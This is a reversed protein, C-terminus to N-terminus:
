GADLLRLSEAAAPDPMLRRLLEAWSDDQQVCERVLAAGREPSGAGVLGVGAWFRLEVKEPATEFARFWRDAAGAADGAASLQDGEDALRYADSLRLLRRLEVLPEPGDDVRLDVLREEPGGTAPVVLIAASQRGRLDGGAAEAADLTALLAAGLGGGRVAEFTDKMAHWVAPSRMINAQVSFGDGVLHGADAMCSAGTHAAASGDAGVVAFQRHDILDDGARLEAVVQDATRGDRLMALGRPKVALNPAAQTAIAGVGAEAAIVLGGVDFWHSQVAVGLSGTEPDRAVISYTM